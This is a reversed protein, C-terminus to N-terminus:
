ANEDCCHTWTLLTFEHCHFVFSLHNHCVISLTNVCSVDVWFQSFSNPYIDPSSLIQGIKHLSLVAHVTTLVLSVNDKARGKNKLDLFIGLIWFFLQSPATKNSIWTNSQYMRYAISFYKCVLVNFLQKM